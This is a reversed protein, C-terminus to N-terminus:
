RGITIAKKEKDNSNDTQQELKQNKIGVCAFAYLPLFYNYALPSSRIIFTLTTITLMTIIVRKNPQRTSFAITIYFIIVLFLAILGNDYLFVKYGSNGFGFKEMSYERGVLLDSSSLFQEYEGDFSDTVRNNGSLDGEDNVELRAMILNNVLNDGDNYYVAGIAIGAVVVIISIVAIMIHKGKAWAGMLAIIPLLVYAALSFTILTTIILVVNYWKKWKGLQNLLLLSTLTGLHGPELFISNFRPFLVAEWRDDIMFIFYNTYSYGLNDNASDIHPLPFGILYLAFGFISIILFGALLKTLCNMMREMEKKNYKMLALYILADFSISIFGIINNKNVARMVISTLLFVVIPIEFGERRFLHTQQGNDILFAIFVFFAAILTYYPALPWMFWPQMAGLIAILIGFYFVGRVLSEKSILFLSNVNVKSNIKYRWKM